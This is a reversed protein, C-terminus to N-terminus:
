SDNKCTHPNASSIRYKTDLYLVLLFCPSHVFYHFLLSSSLIAVISVGYLSAGAKFTNRFALAALTTYGGASGGTICLRKPDAKGSDM